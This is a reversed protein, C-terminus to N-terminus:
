WSSSRHANIISSGALYALLAKASRNLFSFWSNKKKERSTKIAEEITKHPAFNSSTEFDMKPLEIWGHNEDSWNASTTSFFHQEFNKEEDIQKLIKGLQGATLIEQNTKKNHNANIIAAQEIIKLLFHNQADREIIIHAEAPTIAVFSRLEDLTLAEEFFSDRPNNEEVGQQLLNRREAEGSPNRPDSSNNEATLRERQEEASASAQSPATENKNYESANEFAPIAMVRAALFCSGLLAMYILPRRTKM